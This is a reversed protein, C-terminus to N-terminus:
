MELMSWTLVSAFEQCFVVLGLVDSVQATVSEALVAPDARFVLVDSFDREELLDPVRKTPVRRGSIMGTSPMETLLVIRGDKLYVHRDDVKSTVRMQVKRKQACSHGSAQALLLSELAQKGKSITGPKYNVKLLAYHDEYHVASTTSLSGLARVLDLHHFVHVNHSCAEVGMSEEFEIYWERLDKDGFSRNEKLDNYIANPLSFGRLCYVTRLWAQRTGLPCTNLVAPWFALALNRYEEAKYVAADFDRPRRSFRSLGKVKELERNLPEDSVPRYEARYRRFKNTVGAQKYMLKMIKRVVGLFCLHMSEAPVDNILDFDEIDNLLSVARVGDDVEGGRGDAIARARERLEVDTRRRKNMSTAPYHGDVKRALCYPCGATAAHSKLGQLSARKPADAIFYRLTLGSEKLEELFPKLVIADKNGLRKRSPQLIALTYINRCNIFRISLVDISLGSSRSEPVGDLSCDFQKSLAAPRKRPHARIHWMRVEKLSVYYLTYEVKLNRQQIEKKPFTTRPAFEVRAGNEDVCVVVVNVKPMRKQVRHRMVKFSPLEGEKLVHGIDRGNRRLFKVIDAIVAKSVERKAQLSVFFQCIDEADLAHELEEVEDVDEGEHLISRVRAVQQQVDHEEEAVAELEKFTRLVNGVEAVHEAEMRAENEEVPEDFLDAAEQWDGGGDRPALENDPESIDVGIRLESQVQDSPANSTREFPEVYKSRLRALRAELRKKNKARNSHKTIKGFKFM